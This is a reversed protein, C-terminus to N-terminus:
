AQEERGLTEIRVQESFEWLQRSLRDVTESKPPPLFRGLSRTKKKFALIRHASDSVRQAFRRDKEAEHILAEYAAIVFEEKHCLLAVDGGARIHEVAAQDIPAAALVGGMELDDSVIIGRYGIKKRLVDTIWKHSLSAPRQDRTIAPYAAHCVMVFPYDNRLTRYPYLDEPWLEKWGKNIVPLEHHSDLNGEGLGPFHKGCGLVGASALGRLFERVYVVVKKPEPSVARTAMVTRSAEFALDSVPAFDTNFGLARCEAGIFRGHKRFLKRDATAFVAAASPTPAIAKKLRDVLGGEMDVCRFMPTPVLQQCAKLLDYTQQATTINRAFLVVGGPQVRAILSRLNSSMEAGDFGM